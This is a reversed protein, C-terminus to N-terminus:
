TMAYFVWASKLQYLFQRTMLVTTTSCCLISKASVQEHFMLSNSLSLIKQAVWLPYNKETCFIASRKKEKREEVFHFNSVSHSWSLCSATVKSYTFKTNERVKKTTERGTSSSASRSGNQVCRTYLSVPRSSFSSAVVAIAAAGYRRRRRRLPPYSLSSDELWLWALVM